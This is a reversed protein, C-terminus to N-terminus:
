QFIDMTLRNLSSQTINKTKESQYNIEGKMRDKSDFEKHDVRLKILDGFRMGTGCLFLLM